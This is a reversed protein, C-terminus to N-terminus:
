EYIFCKKNWKTFNLTQWELCPQFDQIPTNSVHSKHEETNHCIEQYGCNNAFYFQPQFDNPLIHDGLSGFFNTFM